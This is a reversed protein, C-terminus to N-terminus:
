FNALISFFFQRSPPFPTVDQAQRINQNGFNSVEPDLGTYKTWTKLNRGSFELRVDQAQGRFVQSALNAPLGYSLTIERLKVFTGNEAYVPQGGRYALFRADGLAPNAGLGSGDFYNNTLNIVKGGKRWDFLSTFRVPGVDFDNGFGMQYDPQFDGYSGYKKDNCRGSATLPINCGIQVYVQTPSMGQEIRGSGYVTSFAGGADFAPVALATVKGRNRSYTTNSIWDFGARQIVNLNLGIETGNNVLANGSQIIKTSFGTTPALAASLILDTVKKRYQTVSLQARSNLFALDFGGELETSTEPHITPLGLTLSPRGGLMNDNTSVVLATYKFGYPPLNGAKGYAIRLKLNDAHSPLYPLNYSASFKPYAYFKRDDGNVSSREANVGATLLLKEGLTLFEEQGFYSLSKDIQQFEANFTQLAASVDTIGPPLGRGTATTTQQNQRGQRFGISTTATFPSAFFKHIFTGNLNATVVNGQSNVVTGALGDDLPEFILQPPSYVKSQDAYSDIGGLLTFLLSQKQTSFISWDAAASGLLRYVNEPTRILAADQLLNTSHGIFPNAPYVGNVPNFDFFSPTGSIITYPAVNNNDNGSLSRETLTHLLESNVRVTLASGILQTLNARLSQKNYQTNVQIGADHRVTGAVFYTTGGTSTGGRASMDTEYSLDKRGYLEQEYNHCKVTAANYLAIDAAIKTVATDGTWDAYDQGSAFCRSGLTNSLSQTGLRQTFAVLPKGATGRKTTIVIVGNSGRSGYIAGASAGKLVEITEIDQPNIDAIRNVQQDQNSAFNGGAAATVANIGNQIASNNVVIGDIVYLPSSNANISTVGRLQIQTGGGPAGSNSTIVAGPVKGQLAQDLSQSPARTLKEGEIVTVANAINRSSVSTAQGTVVQTELQLVDRVLSVNLETAGTPVDVVKQTYGIRRVRLTASGAPVSVTFHGQDDTYAGFTTGVVNVSAAVVPEGSGEVTVRGTVLRTQAFANASFLALSLLSFLSSRITKM